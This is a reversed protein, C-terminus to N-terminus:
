HMERYKKKSKCNKWHAFPWGWGKGKLEDQAILTLKKTSLSSPILFATYCKEYM